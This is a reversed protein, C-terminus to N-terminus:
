RLEELIAQELIIDDETVPPYSNWYRVLAVLAGRFTLYTEVTEGCRNIAKWEGTPWKRITHHETKLIFDSM